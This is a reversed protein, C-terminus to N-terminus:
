RRAPWDCDILSAPNGPQEAGFRGFIRFRQAWYAAHHGNFEVEGVIETNLFRLGARIQNDTLADLPQGLDAAAKRIRHIAARERWRDIARALVQIIPALPM